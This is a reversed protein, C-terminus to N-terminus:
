KKEYRSLNYKNRVYAAGETYFAESESWEKVAGAKKTPNTVCYVGNDWYATITEHKIAYKPTKFNVQGYLLYSEGTEMPIWGSRSVVPTGYQATYDKYATPVRQDLIFYHENVTVTDGPKYNTEETQYLVEEIRVTTQVVSNLMLDTWLINEYVKDPSLVEQSKKRILVNESHLPTVVLIAGYTYNRSLTGEPLPILEEGPDPNLIDFNARGLSRVYREIREITIPTLRDSTQDDKVSEANYQISGPAFETVRGNVADWIAPGAAVSAIVIVAVAPLIWCLAKKLKSNKM